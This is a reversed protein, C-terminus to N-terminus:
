HLIQQLMTHMGGDAADEESQEQGIRSIDWIHARRDAASSLLIDQGFPSWEVRFIQDSHGLMSHIPESLKRLDWLAVTNDASGTCLLFENFPNFSLCNVESKHAKVARFPKANSDSNRIDWLNLLGDDGVSGFLYSHHAHWQVDEVIDSHGNFTHIPDLEQGRKSGANIDFVCCSSDDSGSVLTGSQIANWAVGYGLLVYCHISHLNVTNIVNNILM